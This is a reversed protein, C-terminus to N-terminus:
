LSNVADCLNKSDMVARGIEGSLRLPGSRTATTRISTTTATSSTAPTTGRKAPAPMRRAGPHIVCTFVQGYRLYVRLISRKAFPRLHKQRHSFLTWASFFYPKLHTNEGDPQNAPIKVRCNLPRAAAGKKPRPTARDLPFSCKNQPDITGARSGPLGLSRCRGEGNFFSRM